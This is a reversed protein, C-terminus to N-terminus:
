PRNGTTRKVTYWQAVTGKDRLRTNSENIRCQTNDLETQKSLLNSNASTQDPRMTELDLFPNKDKYQHGTLSVICKKLYTCKPL